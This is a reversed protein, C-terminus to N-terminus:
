RLPMRFTFITESDNSDVTLTGDHAKAIESSIFLGLGLGQLSQQVHGRYFPQFLKAMAEPSIASGSNSICLEFEGALTTAEVFIPRESSGHTIANALLNSILQGIRPGDCYVDDSLRLDTEIKRGPHISRLEEVVHNIVPEVSQSSCNLSIGAGLRGRTFDMINDILSAMRAVSQHMTALIETERDKAKPLMRVGASISALPNRLDHGLVAIFQERLEATKREDLLTAESRKLRDFADLQTAILEAFLRFTEITGPDSLKAPKPDIACLTGFFSGDGLIIPMSIYSQLGYQRPTHHSCYIADDAVSDIVVPERSARIEDCITSKVDLEGGPELGFKLYDLSACCIWRDETVRAVAAFGMGTTRCVADLIRPVADINQVAAIDARLDESLPPAGPTRDVM